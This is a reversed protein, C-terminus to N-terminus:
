SSKAIAMGLIKAIFVRVGNQERLAEDSAVPAARMSEERLWALLLAGDQTISLRHIVREISDPNVRVEAPPSRLDAFKRGAM